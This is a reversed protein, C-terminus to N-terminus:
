VNKIEKKENELLKLFERKAVRKIGRAGYKQISEDHIVKDIVDDIKAFEYNIKLAYENLYDSAM